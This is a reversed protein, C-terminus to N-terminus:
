ENTEDKKNNGNFLSSIWFGIYLLGWGIFGFNFDM